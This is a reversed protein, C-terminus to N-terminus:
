VAALERARRIDDFLQAKLAEVNAFTTTDRIRAVFDVELSQDYLDGAFDILHV